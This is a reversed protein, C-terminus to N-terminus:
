LRSEIVKIGDKKNPDVEIILSDYVILKNQTIYLVIDGIRPYDITTHEASYYDFNKIHLTTLEKSSIKDFDEFTFDPNQTYYYNYTYCNSENVKNKKIFFYDM